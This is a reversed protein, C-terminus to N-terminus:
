ALLSQVQRVKRCFHASWSAFFGSLRSGKKGELSGHIHSVAGGALHHVVVRMSSALRAHGFPLPLMCCAWSGNWDLCVMGFQQSSLHRIHSLSVSCFGGGGILLFWAVSCCFLSCLGSFSYHFLHSLLSLFEEFLDSYTV